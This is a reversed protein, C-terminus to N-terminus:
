PLTVPTKAFTADTLVEISNGAYTFSAAVQFTVPRSDCSM